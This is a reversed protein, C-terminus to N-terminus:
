GFDILTFGEKTDKPHCKPGHCPIGCPKELSGNIRESAADLRDYFKIQRDNLEARNIGNMLAVSKRIEELAKARDEKADCKEVPNAFRDRVKALDCALNFHYAAKLLKAFEANEKDAGALVDLGGYVVAEGKSAPALGALLVIISDERAAIQPYDDINNYHSEFFSRVGNMYENVNGDILNPQACTPRFLEKAAGFYLRVDPKWNYLCAPALGQKWFYRCLDHSKEDLFKLDPEKAFADCKPPEPKKAGADPQPVGAPNDTEDKGSCGIAFLGAIAIGALIFPIVM